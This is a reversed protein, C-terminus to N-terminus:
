CRSGPMWTVRVELADPDEAGGYRKIAHGGQAARSRILLPEVVTYLADADPGYLYLLCEGGGFLDGDLEGVGAAEVATEIALELDMIAEREEDGGLVSDRLPLTVLVLDTM